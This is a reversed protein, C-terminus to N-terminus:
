LSGRPKLQEKQRTDSQACLGPIGQFRSAQKGETAQRSKARADARRLDRSRDTTEGEGWGGSNSDFCVFGGLFCYHPAVIRDSFFRNRNVVSRSASTAAM